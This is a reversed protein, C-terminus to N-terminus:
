CFVFKTTLYEELESDDFGVTTFVFQQMEGSFCGGFIETYEPWSNYGSNMSWETYKSVSADVEGTTSGKAGTFLRRCM